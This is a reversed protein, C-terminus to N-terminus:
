RQPEDPALADVGQRVAYLRNTAVDTFVQVTGDPWIVEVKPVVRHGGTGFFMRTDSDSCFSDGHHLEEM